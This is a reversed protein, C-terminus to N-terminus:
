TRKKIYQIADQVTLFSEAEAVPIELGFEDELAMAVEILHLSDTGLDDTFRAEPKVQSEEVNLQETIIKKIKEEVVV